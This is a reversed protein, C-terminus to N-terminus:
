RTHRRSQRARQPLLETGGPSNALSAPATSAFAPAQQPAQPAGFLYMKKADTPHPQPRPPGSGQARPVCRQPRQLPHRQPPLASISPTLGRPLGSPAEHVTLPPSPQARPIRIAAIARRREQALGAMLLLACIPGFFLCIVGWTAPSMRWARRHYLREITAAQVYGVLACFAGVCAVLLQLMPVGTDSLLYRYRGCSGQDSARM